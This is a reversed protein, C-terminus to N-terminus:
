GVSISGTMSPHISCIYDYRAAQPFTLQAAQGPELRPTAFAGNSATADHPARDDNRFIVTDGAKISLNAPSFAMGTITVTHTTPTAHAAALAGTALLPLAASSAMLRLAARRTTLSSM